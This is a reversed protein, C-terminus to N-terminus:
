LHIGIGKDTAYLAVDLIAAPAHTVALYADRTEDDAITRFVHLDTVIVGVLHTREVASAWEDLGVAPLNLDIMTKRTPIDFLRLVGWIHMDAGLDLHPSHAGTEDYPTFRYLETFEAPLASVDAVVFPIGGVHTPMQLIPESIRQGDMGALM